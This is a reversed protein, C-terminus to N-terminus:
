RRTRTHNVPNLMHVLEAAEDGGGGLLRTPTSAATRGCGPHTGKM